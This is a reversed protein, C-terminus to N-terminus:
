ANNSSEIKTKVKTIHEMFREYIKAILSNELKRQQSAREEFAIGHEKDSIEKGKEKIEPYQNHSFANRCANIIQWEDESVLKLDNVLAPKYDEFPIERYNKSNRELVQAKFHTITLKELGFIEDFFLERYHDYAKLEHELAEFSLKDNEKVYKALSPIRRDYLLRRFRGYDKLTWKAGEHPAATTTNTATITISKNKGLPINQEFNVAADLPNNSGSENRYDALKFSAEHGTVEKYLFRCVMALLRDQTQQHRISKEAEAVKSLLLNREKSLLNLKKFANKYHPQKKLDLTITKKSVRYLRNLQYFPQTDNRHYRELLRSFRDEAKGQCAERLLQNARNDFLGVPLNVPSQIKRQLWGDISTTSNLREQKRVMFYPLLQKNEPFSYPWKGSSTDTAFTNLLWKKRETLYREYFALSHESQNIHHPKLFVHGEGKQMLNLEMCITLIDAKRVPFYALMAQLKEAYISTIRQKLEPSAVMRIIDKALYQAMDGAKPGREKSIDKLRQEVDKIEQKVYVSLYREIVPQNINMLYDAAKRPLFHVPVQPPLVKNVASKRQGLLDVYEKQKDSHKPNFVKRTFESPDLVLQEKVESLKGLNLLNQQQKLYNDIIDSIHGPAICALLVVKPLEHISIFIEPAPTPQMKPREGDQEMIQPYLPGNGQTVRRLGIRNASVNYHPAYQLLHKFRNKVEEENFDTLKGFAQLTKEINRQEEKGAITKPYTDLRIKGLEIQFRWNGMATPHRDLFRLAFYTFRDERRVRATINSIARELQESTLEDLKSNAIVNREAEDDLEPLFLKRDEPSLYKYLVEPCKDLENMIDLLLAQDPNDSVLKDHPLNVSFATFAKFTATYRNNTTNKFGTLRHLFMVAYHKELFLCIFFALGTQTFTGTANSFLKYSQLHKFDDQQHTGGQAHTNRNIALTCASTFLTNLLDAFDKNEVATRHPVEQMCDRDYAFSHSYSNRFKNLENIGATFFLIIHAIDLPQQNPKIETGAVIPKDENSFCTIVPLMRKIIYYARTADLENTWIQESLLPNEKSELLGSENTIKISYKEHKLKEILQNIILHLNHRAMNLYVGFYQPPEELSRKNTTTEM